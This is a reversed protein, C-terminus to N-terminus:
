GGEETKQGQSNSEEPVRVSTSDRLTQGRHSASKVTNEPSVGATVAMLIEREKFSLVSWTARIAAAQKGTQGHASARTAEM